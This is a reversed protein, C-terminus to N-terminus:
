RKLLAPTLRRMQALLRSSSISRSPIPEAIATPDNSAPIGSDIVVNSVTTVPCSLIAATIAIKM